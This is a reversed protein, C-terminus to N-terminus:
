IVDSSLGTVDHGCPLRHRTWTDGVFQRRDALSIAVLRFQATRELLVSQTSVTVLTLESVAGSLNTVDIAMGLVLGVQTPCEVRGSETRVARSAVEDVALALVTM